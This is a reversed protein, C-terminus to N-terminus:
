TYKQCVRHQSNYKPMIQNKCMWPCFLSLSLINQIENKRSQDSNQFYNQMLKNKTWFM